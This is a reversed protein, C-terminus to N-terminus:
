AALVFLLAWRLTQPRGGCVSCSRQFSISRSLISPCPQAPLPCRAHAPGTARPGTKPRIATYPVPEVLLEWSNTVAYEFAVPLASERGEASFQQEFGSAIQFHHAHHFRATETELTQAYGAGPVILSILAGFVAGRAHRMFVENYTLFM